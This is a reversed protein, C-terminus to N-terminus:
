ESYIMKVTMGGDITINQGTIFESSILFQVAKAIDEPTGVRGAPHQSHDTEAPSYTEDCNIWGPSICNVLIDPGLSVALSHTLAIIGGKSASYAFTDPESQFARTSAINIIHGKTMRASAYKAFLFAGTLNVDIVRQWDALTTGNLPLRKPSAIGANNILAYLEGCQEVCARVSAEDACETRIFVAGTEEATQKGAAEDIDAIFVKRGSATMHRVIGRGIGKAGGTVLINGM